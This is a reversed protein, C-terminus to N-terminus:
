SLTTGDYTRKNHVAYRIMNRCPNTCALQTWTEFEAASLDSLRRGVYVPRFINGAGAMGGQQMVWRISLDNPMFRMFTDPAIGFIANQRCMASALRVFTKGGYGVVPGNVGGSATFQAGQPVSYIAHARRELHSYLTWVNAEALLVSPPPDGPATMRDLIEDIVEPEPAIFATSAATPSGEIFAQLEPYNAVNHSTDPFTGSSILLNELGNQALSAGADLDYMGAYLMAGGDAVVIDGEGPESEFGVKLNRKNVGVCRAFSAPSSVDTGGGQVPTALTSDAFVYRQGRKFRFCQGQAVALWTPTTGESITGGGDAFAMVGNGKAWTQATIAHRVQSTADSVYGTAVESVPDSVLDAEIDDRSLTVSGRIKRLLSNLLLYSRQPVVVPDIHLSDAGLGMSLENGPGMMEASTDGFSAGEILGGEQLQVNWKAEYGPTGSGSVTRRGMKTVNRMTKLLGWMPDDAKIELNVVTDDLLERVLNEFRAFTDTIAM